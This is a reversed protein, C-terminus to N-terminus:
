DFAVQLVAHFGRRREDGDRGASMWRGSRVNHSLVEFVGARLVEGARRGDKRVGCLEPKGERQARTSDRLAAHYRYESLSPESEVDCVRHAGLNRGCEAEYRRRRAWM